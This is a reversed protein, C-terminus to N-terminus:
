TWHTISSFFIHTTNTWASSAVVISPQEPHSNCPKKHWFVEGEPEHKEKSTLVLSKKMCLQMEWYSRTHTFLVLWDSWCFREMNVVAKHNHTSDTLVWWHVSLVVNGARVRYMDWKSFQTHLSEYTSTGAASHTNRHKHAQWQLTKHTQKAQVNTHGYHACQHICHSRGPPTLPRVCLSRQCVTPCASTRVCM